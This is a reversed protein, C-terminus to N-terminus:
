TDALVGSQQFCFILKRLDAVYTPQHGYTPFPLVYKPIPVSSASDSARAVSKAISKKVVVIALPQATCIAAALAPEGTLWACKREPDSMGNVPQPCLDILYCGLARFQELFSPMDLMPGDQPSFAECTYRALHSDGNYFFTGNNPRSEGVFLVRIRNPRFSERIVEYPDTNM